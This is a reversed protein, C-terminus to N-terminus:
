QDKSNVPEKLSRQDTRPPHSKGLLWADIREKDFFKQRLYPNDGTPLLKLQTLKYIKSKSLGTYQALDEVNMVKQNHSLLAKIDQLLELEKQNKM